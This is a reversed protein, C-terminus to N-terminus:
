RKAPTILGFTLVFTATTDDIENRTLPPTLCIGVFDKGWLRSDQIGHWCIHPSTLAIVEGSPWRIEMKRANVDALRASANTKGPALPIERPPHQDFSVTLGPVILERPLNFQCMVLRADDPLHDYTYEVHNDDLVRMALTVGDFPPGFRASLTRGDAVISGAVPPAHTSRGDLAPIGLTLRHTDSLRCVVGAPTLALAPEGRLPILAVLAAAAISLPATFWSAVTNV